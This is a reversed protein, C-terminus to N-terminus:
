VVSVTKKGLRTGFKVTGKIVAYITHDRGIAVGKGLRIKTGRQRVIISGPAVKNGDFSKVSLRKGRPSVHQISKSGAKKKAM